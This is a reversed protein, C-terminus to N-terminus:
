RELIAAHRWRLQDHGPEGGHRHRGAGPHRLRARAGRRQDENWGHLHENRLTDMHGCGDEACGDHEHEHRQRHQGSGLGAGTGTLALTSVLTTGSTTVGGSLAFPTSGSADLTFTGGAATNMNIVRNSSGSATGVYQLTGGAAIGITSNAGVAPEGLSNATTSGANQITTIALTGATITTVGAYSNAGSLTTLGSGAQSVGGTGSIATSFNLATDTRNFALTANDVVGSTALSGTTGGNGIQLTGASITTTGTYTNAGYLALTGTGAKTLNVTQTTGNTGNAIVGGEALIKASVTVTRTAAASAGLSIAGTGMDLNNTGTFTFDGSWVQANNTSLTGAAGSSNDFVDGGTSSQQAFTLTGTGIASATSSSGLNGIRLTENQGVLSTGTITVGGSFTNAGNLTLLGGQTGNTITLGFGSGGDSIVNGFVLTGNSINITSSSNLTATNSFTLTGGAASSAGLNFSGGIVISNGVTLTGASVVGIGGGNITITGTGASQANSLYLAGQTITVGGTFTSSAGTLKILSTSNGGSITLLGGGSSVGTPDVINGGLVLIENSSPNLTLGHAVGSAGLTIGGLFTVAAAGTASSNGLADVTAGTGQVVINNTLTTSVTTNGALTAGTVGTTDGLFVTGTGLASSNQEFLIGNTITTGGSYTNAGSLYWRGTGSKNVALTAGAAGNGIIGSVTNTLTNSGNLNLTTTGTAAGATVGGGINLIGSGPSAVVNLANDTFSYSGNTGELVLPANVTDTFTTGGASSLAGMAISGGNSLLLSNGGTSGIFYGNALTTFAISGINQTPSDIVIPNAASNGWTNAIASSFTATDTNITGSTSGPVGNTANWDGANSWNGNTASGGTWTSSTAHASYGSLLLAYAVAAILTNTNKM